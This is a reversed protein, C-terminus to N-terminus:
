TSRNAQGIPRRHASLDCDLLVEEGLIHARVPVRLAEDVRLIPPLSLSSPGSGLIIPAIMVHLRDLCGAALFRSVTNAGGEILLRRLGRAALAGLIAAPAIEDQDVPLAVIEVGEPLAPRAGERTV